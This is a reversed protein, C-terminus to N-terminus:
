EAANAFPPTRGSLQSWDNAFLPGLARELATQLAEFSSLPEVRTEDLYLGRNIEIQLAHVGRQPNGYAQTTHGGAYPANRAVSFGEGRLRREVQDVLAKDCASAFRDGLVIDHRIARGAISSPMSHADILVARGCFALSQEVLGSLSAHYPRYTSNLRRQGEAQTLRRANIRAGGSAIRPICGLGAEVRVSPRAPGPLGGSFMDPDIEDVGRNLDVYTRAYLAHILPAGHRPAFRFLRDVGHDEVRRLHVLDVGLADILDAPYIRGSHPSACIVAWVAEDPYVVEFAPAHPGWESLTNKDHPDCPRAM